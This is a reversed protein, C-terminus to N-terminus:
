GALAEPLPTHLELEHLMEVISRITSAALPIGTAVREQQTLHELEGPLYVEDVTPNPRTSKLRRRIASVRELFVARSSFVEPDIVLVLHSIDLSATFADTTVVDAPIEGLVRGGSLGGALIENVVALGFGKPGGVPLLFGALAATPDDTPRGAADTAWGMPISRGERQALRIRGRAVVSCAMDLVVAPPEATPLAWALPNNCIGEEAGGWPLMAPPGNTTIFGIFGQVAAKLPYSFAAGFHNSNRVTVAGLGHARALDIALDIAAMAAVQGTGHHADMVATPGFTRVVEPRAAPDIAKTVLARVSRPLMRCGHSDVGRLDAAVLVDAVTQAAALDLGVEELVGRCFAALEGADVRQGMVM